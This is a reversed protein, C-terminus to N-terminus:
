IRLRSYQFDLGTSVGDRVYVVGGERPRNPSLYCFAAVLLAILILGGISAGVILGVNPKDEKESM